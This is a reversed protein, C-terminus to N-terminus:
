FLSTQGDNALNSTINLEDMTSLIKTSIKTRSLLDDKSVFQSLNRAEVISQAMKLGMGDITTFSPILSQGDIKFKSADSENLDVMKFNFGRTYFELAVEYITLLTLEKQKVTHKTLPDKKRIKIDDIKIKLNTPGSIITSL